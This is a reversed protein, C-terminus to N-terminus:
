LFFCLRPCSDHSPGKLHTVCSHICNMGTDKPPLMWAELWSRCGQYPRSSAFDWMRDGELMKSGFSGIGRSVISAIFYSLASASRWSILIIRPHSISKRQRSTLSGSLLNIAQIAAMTFISLSPVDIVFFRLVLM